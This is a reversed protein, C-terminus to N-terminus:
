ANTAVSNGSLVDPSIVGKAKRVPSRASDFEASNEKLASESKGVPGDVIGDPNV